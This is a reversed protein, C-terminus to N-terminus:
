RATRTREVLEVGYGDPDRFVATRTGHEVDEPPVLSPEIGTQALTARAAELDAVELVLYAGPARPPSVQQPRSLQLRSPEGPLGLVAIEAADGVRTRAREEFGLQGYFAASRDLDAVVLATRVLRVGDIM